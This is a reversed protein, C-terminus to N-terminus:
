PFKHMAIPFATLSDSKPLTVPAALNGISRHVTDM